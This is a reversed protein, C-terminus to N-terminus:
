HRLRHLLPLFNNRIWMIMWLLGWHVQVSSSSTVIFPFTDPPTQENQKRERHFTFPSFNCKPCPPKRSFGVSSYCITRKSLAQLLNWDMRPRNLLCVATWHQYGPHSQNQKSHSTLWLFFLCFVLPPNPPFTFSFGWHSQIPLIATVFPQFKKWKSSTDTKKTKLSLFVWFDM